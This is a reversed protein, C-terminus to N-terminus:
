GSNKLGRGRYLGLAKNRNAKFYAFFIEERDLIQM